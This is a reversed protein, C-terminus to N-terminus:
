DEPVGVHKGLKRALAREGQEARIAQKSPAYRVGASESDEDELYPKVNTCRVIPRQAYNLYRGKYLGLPRKSTEM